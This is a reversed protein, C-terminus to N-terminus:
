ELFLVWTDPAFCCRGQTSFWIGLYFSTEWSCLFMKREKSQFCKERNKQIRFSSNAVKGNGYHLVNQPKKAYFCYLKNVTPVKDHKLSSSIQLYGGLIFQIIPNTFIAFSCKKETLFCRTSARRLCSIGSGRLM